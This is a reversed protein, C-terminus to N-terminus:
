VNKLCLNIQRNLTSVILRLLNCTGIFLTVVFINLYSIYLVLLLNLNEYLYSPNSKYLAIQQAASQLIKHLTSYCNLQSNRSLSDTGDQPTLCVKSCQASVNDRFTSIFIGNYVAHFRLLACIDHVTFALDRYRRSDSHHFWHPKTPSIHNPHLSSSRACFELFPCKSCM